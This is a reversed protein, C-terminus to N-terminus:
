KKYNKNFDKVTKDLKNAEDKVEKQTFGCYTMEWLCHALASLESLRKDFKIEAGLWYQWDDFEIAWFTYDNDKKGSVSWYRTKDFKDYLQYVVIEYEPKKPELSRLEKLAKEYAGTGMNRKEDPYRKLLRKQIKNNTYKDLLQKFTMYKKSNGM